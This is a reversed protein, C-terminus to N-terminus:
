GYLWWWVPRVCQSVDLISHNIHPFRSSPLTPLTCSLSSAVCLSAAASLLHVLLSLPHQESGPCWRSRQQRATMGRSAVGAGRVCLKCWRICMYRICITELLHSFIQLPAWSCMASNSWSPILCSCKQENRQSCSLILTSQNTVAPMVPYVPSKKRKRGESNPVLHAQKIQVIDGSVPWFRDAHPWKM